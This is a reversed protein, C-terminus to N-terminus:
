EEVDLGDAAVLCNTKWFTKTETAPSEGLKALPKSDIPLEQQIYSGEVITGKSMRWVGDGVPKQGSFGGIYKTGDTLTWSGQVIQGKKWDGEYAYKTKTFVYTGKGERKNRSWLGSYIDGNAYQFTGEGDRQGDKFYGHYFGGKKYTVRALGSKLNKEFHGEYVDGHRYKYMGSGQRVGNGM